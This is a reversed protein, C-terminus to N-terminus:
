SRSTAVRAEAPRILRSTRGLAAAYSVREARLRLACGHLCVMHMVFPTSRLMLAGAAQQALWVLVFPLGLEKAQLAELCWTPELFGPTRDVRM